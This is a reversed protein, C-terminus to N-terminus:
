GALAGYLVCWAVPLDTDWAVRDLPRALRSGDHAESVDSPGEGIWPMLNVSLDAKPRNGSILESVQRKTIARDLLAPSGSLARGDSSSHIGLM